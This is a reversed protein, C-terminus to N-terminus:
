KPAGPLGKANFRLLSSKVATPDPSQRLHGRLDFIGTFKSPGRPPRLADEPCDALLAAMLAGLPAIGTHRIADPTGLHGTGEREGL